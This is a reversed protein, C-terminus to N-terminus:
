DAVARGAGHGSEVGAGQKWRPWTLEDAIRDAGVVQLRVRVHTLVAGEGDDESGDSSAAGSDGAGGTWIGGEGTCEGGEGALDFSGGGEGALGCTSECPPPLSPAIAALRPLMPLNRVCAAAAAACCAERAVQWDQAEDGCGCSAPLRPSSPQPSGAASGVAWGTGEMAFAALAVECQAAFHAAEVLCAPPLCSLLEALLLLLLPAELPHAYAHQRTRSLRDCVPALLLRACREWTGPVQELGLRASWALVRAEVRGHRLAAGCRAAATRGGLGFYVAAAARLEMEVDPAAVATHQHGIWGLLAPTATDISCLPLSAVLRMASTLGTSAPLTLRSVAALFCDRIAECVWDPASAFRRAAERLNVMAEASLIASPVSDEALCRLARALAVAPMRPAAERVARTWADLLASCANDGERLHLAGAFRPLCREVARGLRSSGSEGSVIPLV